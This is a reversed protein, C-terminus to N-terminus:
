TSLWTRLTLWLLSGSITTSLSNSLIDHFRAPRNNPDPPMLEQNEATLTISHYLYRVATRRCNRSVLCFAKLPGSGTPAIPPQWLSDPDDLIERPHAANESFQQIICDLIDQPLKMKIDYTHVTILPFFKIRQLAKTRKFSCDLCARTLQLMRGVDSADSAVLSGPRNVHLSLELNFYRLAPFRSSAVVSDMEDWVSPEIDICNLDWIQLILTHLSPCPGTDGLMRILKMTRENGEQKSFEVPECQNILLKRLNSYNSFDFMNFKSPHQIQRFFTEWRIYDIRLFELSRSSLQLFSPDTEFRLNITCAKLESLAEKWCSMQIFNFSWHEQTSLYRIKPLGDMPKDGNFSSSDGKTDTDLHLAEISSYQFISLPLYIVHCISLVRLSSSRLLVKVASRFAWPLADWIVCAHNRVLDINLREITICSNASLLEFIRSVLGDKFIYDVNDHRLDDIGEIVRTLTVERICTAITPHPSSESTTRSLSNVLIDHFQAIRNNPDAPTSQQNEACLTISHHLYRIATNRCDRSVLCFAKLPGSGTPVIPPKWLLNLEPDEPVIDSPHPADQGFQHIICDIIDQPLKM